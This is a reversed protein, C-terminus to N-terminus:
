AAEVEDEAASQAQKLAKRGAATVRYCCPVAGTRLVPTLGTNQELWGYALLEGHLKVLEEARVGELEMRRDQWAEADAANGAVYHALLRLLGDCGRLRDFEDFM